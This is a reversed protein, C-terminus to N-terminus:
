PVSTQQPQPATAPSGNQAALLTRVTEQWWDKASRPDMFSGTDRVAVSISNSYAIGINDSRRLAPLDDRGEAHMAHYLSLLNPDVCVNELHIMYGYAPSDDRTYTLAIQFQDAYLVMAVFDRTITANRRPPYIAEGPTTAM